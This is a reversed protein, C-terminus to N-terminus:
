ELATRTKNLPVSRSLLPARLMQIRIQPFLSAQAVKPFMGKPIKLGSLTEGNM